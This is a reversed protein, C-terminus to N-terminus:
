PKCTKIITNTVFVRGEETKMFDTLHDMVTKCRDCPDNTVENDGSTWTMTECIFCPVSKMFIPRQAADLPVVNFPNPLCAEKKRSKKVM